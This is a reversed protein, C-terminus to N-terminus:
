MGQRIEAILRELVREKQNQTRADTLMGGIIMYDAGNKAVEGPMDVHMQGHTPSGAFRTGVAVIDLPLKYGALMARMKKVKAAPCIFGQVGAEVADELMNQFADPQYYRAFEEDTLSSLQVVAYVKLHTAVVARMMDLGGAAHVTVHTAGCNRFITARAAALSAKEHLKADVCVRRAGHSHLLRVRDRLAADTVVHTKIVEFLHGFKDLLRTAQRIPVDPALWLGKM